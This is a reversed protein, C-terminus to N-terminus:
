VLWGIRRTLERFKSNAHVCHLSPERTVEILNSNHEEYAKELWELVGDPEALSGYIRAIDYPSVYWKKRTGSDATSHEPL